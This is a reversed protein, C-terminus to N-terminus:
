RDTNRPAEAVVLAGELPGTGNRLLGAPLQSLLLVLMCVGEGLVAREPKPPPELREGVGLHDLQVLLGVEKATIRGVGIGGRDHQLLM